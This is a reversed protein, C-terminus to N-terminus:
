KTNISPCNCKTEHKCHLLFIRATTLRHARATAARILWHVSQTPYRLVQPDRLTESACIDTLKSYHHEGM